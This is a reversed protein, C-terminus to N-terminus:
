IQIDQKLPNARLHISQFVINVKKSKMGWINQFSSLLSVFFNCNKNKRQQGQFLNETIM